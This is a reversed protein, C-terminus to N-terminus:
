KRWGSLANKVDEDDFLLSFYLAEQEMANEIDSNYSNNVAKKIYYLTKSPKESISKVIKLADQEDNVIENILGIRLAEEASLKKGSMALYKANGMGVIKPLIVNGGAGANIGISIEPQGITADKLSLRIDASEAIELGGGMSYGKLIAIVPKISERINRSLMNMRRRFEYADKINFSALMKIDAGACFNSGNGTLVITKIATDNQATGFANSLSELMELNITNLKEPRNLKIVCYRDFKEFIVNM